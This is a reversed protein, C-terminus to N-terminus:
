FYAASALSIAAFAASSSSFVFPWIWPNFASFFAIRLYAFCASLSLIFSSSFYSSLGAYSFFSLSSADLFAFPGVSASILRSVIFAM